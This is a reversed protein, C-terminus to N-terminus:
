DIHATSSTLLSRWQEPQCTQIALPSNNLQKLGDQLERLASWGLSHLRWSDLLRRQPQAAPSPEFNICGTYGMDGALEYTLDSLSIEEGSGINIHRGMPATSGMFDNRPLQLVHLCADAMDDVHLLEHRENPDGSITVFLQDSQRAQQIRHILDTVLTTDHTLLNVPGYHQCAVACRFDAPRRRSPHSYSECLEMAAWQAVAQGRWEASPLGNFLEEEAIPLLARQPYVFAGTIFLLRDVNTEYAAQMVNVASAMDTAIAEPSLAERHLAGSPFYVQDPREQAFFALVQAQDCLDLDDRTVLQRQSYGQSLLQRVIAAGLTSQHHAIYIQDAYKIMM